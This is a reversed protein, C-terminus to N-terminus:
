LMFGLYEMELRELAELDYDHAYMAHFVSKGSPKKVDSNYSREFSDYKGDLIDTFKDLQLIWDFSARWARGGVRGCLFHSSEVTDFAQKILTMNGKVHQWPKKIQKKHSKTLQKVQLLSPCTEHFTDLIQEYPISECETTLRHQPLTQKYDKNYRSESEQNVCSQTPTSPTATTLTNLTATVLADNRMYVTIKRIRDHYSLYLKGKFPNTSKIYATKSNYVQGIRSFATRFEAKSFGLEEVWSDGVQYREHECPSLFKYFSQGKKKEFWYELQCMVLSATVSGTIPNLEPCYTLTRISKM